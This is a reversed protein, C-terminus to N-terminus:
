MPPQPLPALPSFVSVNWDPRGSPNSGPVQPSFFLMLSPNGYRSALGGGCQIACSVRASLLQMGWRGALFGKRILPSFLDMGWPSDPRVNGRHSIGDCRKALAFGIRLARAAAPLPKARSARIEESRSSTGADLWLMKHRSSHLSVGGMKRFVFRVIGNRASNEGGGSPGVPLPFPCDRSREFPFKPACLRRALPPPPASFTFEIIV